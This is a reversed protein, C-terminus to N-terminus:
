VLQLRENKYSLYNIFTFVVGVLGEPWHLERTRLIGQDLNKPLYQLVKYVWYEYSVEFDHKGSAQILRRYFNAIKIANFLHIGSWGTLDRRNLHEAHQTMVTNSTVTFLSQGMAKEAQFLLLMVEWAKLKEKFSVRSNQEVGVFPLLYTFGVSVMEKIHTKNTELGYEQVLVRLINILNYFLGDDNRNSEDYEHFQLSLRGGLNEILGQHYAEDVMDNFYHRVDKADSDLVFYRLVDFLENSPRTEFHQIWNLGSKHMEFHLMDMTHKGFDPGGNKKLLWVMHGFGCMGHDFSFDTLSTNKTGMNRHVKKVLRYAKDFRTDDDFFKACKLYYFALALKGGSISDDNNTFDYSEIALHIKELSQVLLTEM